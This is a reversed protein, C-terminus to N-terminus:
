AQHRPFGLSFDFVSLETFVNNDEVEAKPGGVTKGYWMASVPLVAVKTAMEVGTMLLVSRDLGIVMRMGSPEEMNADCIASNSKGQKGSAARLTYM